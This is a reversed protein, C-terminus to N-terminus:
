ITKLLKAESLQETGNIDIHKLRYYAHMADRRVYKDFCGYSDGKLQKPDPGLVLAITKYNIGDTSKQIEFYNTPASNEISWSISVRKEDTSVVFSSFNLKNKLPQQNKQAWSSLSVLTLLTIASILRILKRTNM